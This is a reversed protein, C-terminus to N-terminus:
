PNALAVIRQYTQIPTDGSTLILTAHPKNKVLNIIEQAAFDALASADKLVQIKM